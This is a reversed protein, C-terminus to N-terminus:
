NDGRVPPPVIEWLRKWAPPFQDAPVDVQWISFPNCNIGVVYWEEGAAPEAFQPPEKCWDLRV